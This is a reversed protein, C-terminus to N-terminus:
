KVVPYKNWKIITVYLGTEMSRKRSRFYLHTRYAIKTPAPADGNFDNSVLYKTAISRSGLNAGYVLFLVHETGSTHPTKSRSIYIYCILTVYTKFIM